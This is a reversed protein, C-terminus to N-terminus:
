LSARPAVDGKPRGPQGSSTVRKRKWMLRPCPKLGESESRAGTTNWVPESGTAHEVAQPQPKTDGFQRRIRASPMCTIVYTHMRHKFVLFIYM